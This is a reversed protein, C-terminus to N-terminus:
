YGSAYGEVRDDAAGYLINKDGRQVANVRGMWSEETQHGKEKMFDFMEPSWKGKDFYIIPPQFQAHLRPLHIAEELNYNNVLTRYIVQAVSSIIRPGGQAGLVLVTEGNKEVITPSMSSLPRKGPEIANAKGQILGYINPENPRTTFDDMENNLVIGFKPTVVGSGYSGNLTITMAVADGNSNIISFHTTESSENNKIDVDEKLAQLQIKKDTNITKNLALMNAPSLLDAVPNKTFDPDGIQTRLRFSRHFVEALLHSEPASYPRWKKLDQMELLKFIATMVVGGSSPPPMLYLKYNLFQTVMPKLWRVKYSQLDELSLVGGSKEVAFVLDQAIPGEYFGEVGRTAILGLGDALGPQRLVDGPLYPVKSQKFFHKYGAPNFNGKIGETRDYLENSIEFGKRALKIPGSLVDKWRLKGYKKHLEYYGKVLGPVAVASGGYVSDQKNKKMFFNPDTKKPAVERFDLVETEGNMKVLAFGGGGLSAFYPNTVSMMLAVGVAVDVITGGQRYLEKGYEVALENAASIMIKQGAAPTAFSETSLLSLILFILPM